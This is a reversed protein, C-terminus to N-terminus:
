RLPDIRFFNGSVKWNEWNAILEERHIEIWARVLLQKGAPLDGCVFASDHISFLAEAGQCRAHLNPLVPPNGRTRCFAIIIGYYASIMQPDPKPIRQSPPRTYLHSLDLGQIEFQEIAEFLPELPYLENGYRRGAHPATHGTLADHVAEDIGTRRCLDKFTHRFSHFV